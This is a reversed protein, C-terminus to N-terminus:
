LYLCTLFSLKKPESLCLINNQKDMFTIGVIRQMEVNILMFFEHEASNLKFFNIVEPM